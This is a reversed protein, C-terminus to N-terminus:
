VCKTVGGCECVCVFFPALLCCCVQSFSALQHQYNCDQSNFSTHILILNQLLVVLLRLRCAFSVHLHKLAAGGVSWAM